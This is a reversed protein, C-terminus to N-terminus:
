GRLYREAVIERWRGLRSRVPTAVRLRLGVSAAGLAAVVFLVVPWGRWAAPLTARSSVQTATLPPGSAAAPQPVSGAPKASPAAYPPGLGRSRPGAPLQPALGADSRLAADLPDGVAVAVSGALVTAAVFYSSQRDSRGVLQLGGGGVSAVAGSRARTVVPQVLRVDLYGSGSFARAVAQAASAAQPAAVRTTDVDVGDPTVVVPVGAVTADALRVGGSAVADGPDGDTSAAAAYTATRVHVPGIWLDTATTSADAEVRGARVDAHSTSRLAGITVGAAPSPAVASATASAAPSPDAHAVYVATGDTARADHGNNADRTSADAAPGLAQTPVFQELLGLDTRAARASAQHPPNSVDARTTFLRAPIPSGHSGAEPDVPVAVASADYARDAVSTPAALVSLPVGAVLLAAVATARARTM